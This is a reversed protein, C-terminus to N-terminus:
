GVGLQDEGVRIPVLEDHRAGSVAGEVWTATFDEKTAGTMPLPALYSDGRAALAGRTEPAAMKCDGADLLGARGLLTRVREIIPLYLPDDAADGPHVTTAILQGAPEAAAAMLKFQALDDRHDKSHGLQVLGGDVPTHFGYSTTSDLRIRELPLSSVECTGKWLDAEIRDRTETHSLRTLLLTLRDDTRDVERITLGTVAQLCHHLQNARSRVHSKRHDAQCRISTIPLTILWGPSLGQHHPHPKLHRDLLLPLRLQILFGLILPFDDVREHVLRLTTPLATSRRPTLFVTTTGSALPLPFFWSFTMHVHM